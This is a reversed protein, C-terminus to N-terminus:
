PGKRIVLLYKALFELDDRRWMEMIPKEGGPPWAPEPGFVEEDLQAMDKAYQKARLDNGDILSLKYVRPLLVDKHKELVEGLVADARKKDGKITLYRALGIQYKFGTPSAKCAEEMLAISQDLRGLRYLTEARMSCLQAQSNKNSFLAKYAWSLAFPHLRINESQDYLLQARAKDDKANIALFAQADPNQKDRLILQAGYHCRLMTIWASTAYGVDFLAFTIVAAGVLQLAMQGKVVPSNLRDTLRKNVTLGPKSMQFLSVLHKQGSLDLVSIPLRLVVDIDHKKDPTGSVAYSRIELTGLLTLYLEDVSSMLIRRRGLTFALLAQDSARLELDIFRKFLILPQGRKVFRVSRTTLDSALIRAFLNGLALACICLLPFIYLPELNFWFTSCLLVIFVFGFVPWAIGVTTYVQHSLNTNLTKLVVGSQGDSLSATAGDPPQKQPHAQNMSDEVWM